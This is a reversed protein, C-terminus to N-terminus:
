VTLRCNRWSSDAALRWADWMRRFLQLSFLLSSWLLSQPRNAWSKRVQWTHENSGPHTNGRHSGGMAAMETEILGSGLHLDLNTGKKLGLQQEGTLLSWDGQKPPPNYPMIGQLSGEEGWIGDVKSVVGLDGPKGLQSNDVRRITWYLIKHDVNRVHRFHIEESCGSFIQANQSCKSILWGGSERLMKCLINPIQNIRGARNALVERLGEKAQWRFMAIEKGTAKLTELDGCGCFQQRPYETIKTHTQTHTVTHDIALLKIM